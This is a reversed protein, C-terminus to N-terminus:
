KVPPTAPLGTHLWQRVTSREDRDLVLFWSTFFFGALTLTLFVGKAAMNLPLMAAALVILSGGLVMAMRQVEKRAAPLLRRSFDLLLVSDLLVRILWALAAGTIGLKGVLWWLLLLYFPLEVLHFKATLDPRGIGQILTYSVQAVSNIFVGLTLCQLVIASNRAFAEGVWLQLIEHALTTLVLAVPFVLLHIWKMSRSFLRATHRKNQAFSTSFAPFMVGVIAGPIVWLRTVVEYPTVYYAVATVSVLIGILFRDLYEMLPSIINSVTLWGGFRLIPGVYAGRVELHTRLIPLTRLCLVLYVLWAVIRGAALVAVIHVLKNSFPLVALPGLYTLLGLNIRVANILEFRQKAELIGRLGATSVVIPISLALLYFAQLCEAQLGVPIKLLRTVLPPSLLAMVLTGLLGFLWMLGLGTWVLGRLEPQRKTALHEAVLKTLARGIGLDFLSFYGIVMWALTLVGFRDLGLQQILLPIAFIAVIMPAGRGVLNLLTNRALLRGRTLEGAASEQEAKNLKKQM